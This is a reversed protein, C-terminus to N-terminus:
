SYSVDSLTLICYQQESGDPLLWGASGTTPIRCGEIEEYGGFRVVWPQLEFGGAVQKWRQADGRVMEGDEAFSFDASVSSGGDSLTARARQCGDRDPLPAWTLYQPDPLLAHPFWPSEALYRSLSGETIEKTGVINMIPFPGIRGRMSGRGNVYGDAVRVSLLSLPWKRGMAIRSEWLMGIPSAPPVSFRQVAKFPAWASSVPDAAGASDPKMLFLGTQKITARTVRVNSRQLTMTLYKFVIPPLQEKLAQLDPMDRDHRLGDSGTSAAIISNRLTASMSEFRNCKMSVVVAAVAGFAVVLGVVTSSEFSAM